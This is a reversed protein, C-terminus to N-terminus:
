LTCSPNSLGALRSLVSKTSTQFGATPSALGTTEATTFDAATTVENVKTCTNKLLNEIKSVREKLKDIEDRNSYYAAGTVLLNGLGIAGPVLLPEIEALDQRTQTTQYNALYSLFDQDHVQGAVSAVGGQDPTYGELDNQYNYYPYEFGNEESATGTIVLGIAMLFFTSLSPM